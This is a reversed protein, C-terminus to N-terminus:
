KRGFSIFGISMYNGKGVEKNIEGKGDWQELWPGASTHLNRPGKRKESLETKADKSFCHMIMHFM